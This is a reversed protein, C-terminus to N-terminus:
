FRPEDEITESSTSASAPREELARDVDKITTEAGRLLVECEHVLTKGEKFLRTAQELDPNGTELEKVIQEVRGLKQEFSQLPRDPM